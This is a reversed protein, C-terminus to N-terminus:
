SKKQRFIPKFGKILPKKAACISFHGCPHIKARVPPFNARVPRGIEACTSNEACPRSFPRVFRNKAARFPFNGARVPFDRARFSKQV